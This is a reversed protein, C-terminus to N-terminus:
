CPYKELLKGIEGFLELAFDRREPGRCKDFCRRKSDLFAQREGLGKLDMSGDFLVRQLCVPVVMRKGLLVPLESETIFRSALFGPSVLLIGFRCEALATEIEERWKEGPLILHDSWGGFEYKASGKLLPEMVDRFREVDPGDSHAYSLFYPTAQKM